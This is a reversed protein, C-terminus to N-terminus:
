ALGLTLKYDNQDFLARSDVTLMLNTAVLDQYHLDEIGGFAGSSAHRDQEAQAKSGGTILGGVGLEVWNNYTKTGGEFYQEPTLPSNTEGAAWALPACVFMGAAIVCCRMVAALSVNMGATMGRRSGVNTKM